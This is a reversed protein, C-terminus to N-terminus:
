EEGRGYLGQRVEQELMGWITRRLSAGAVRADGTPDRPRPLDGRLDARITAPAGSLVLIRDALLIAEDIDHTVFVVLKKELAWLSLLEQQLLLRTQADLSGFPEDLLLVGAKSVFARALAVRQRMGVSLELPYSACYRELGVTRIFGLAAEVRERRGVGQMELGFAVNELVTMWPFLGHEQFVLANRPPAGNRSHFVVEGATPDLIGALIKLLTTKGCGSPGVLCLFENASATFDVSRLAEIRGRPTEFVKSINRSELARTV